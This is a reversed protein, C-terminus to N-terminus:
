YDLNSNNEKLAQFVENWTEQGESNRSLFRCIIKIPKGKYTVWHKERETKLIGKNQVKSLKIHYASTRKQDHRNSTRFTKMEQIHVYKGLNPFKEEVMENNHKRYKKEQLEVKEWDTLWTQDKITTRNTTEKKKGRNRESHALKNVQDELGWTREEM